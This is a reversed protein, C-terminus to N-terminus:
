FLRTATKDLETVMRARLKEALEHTSDQRDIEGGRQLVEIKSMPLENNNRITDLTEGSGEGDLILLADVPALIRGTGTLFAERWYRARSIDPADFRFAIGDQECVSLVLQRMAGELVGSPATCVAGDEEVVFFNSTLGELLSRRFPGKSSGATESLLVEQTGAQAKLYELRRRDRLWSSHKAEPLSRGPGAILVEVGSCGGGAPRTPLPWAHALINLNSCKKMEWEETRTSRNQTDSTRDSKFPVGGELQRRDEFGEALDGISGDHTYLVTTMCEPCGEATNENEELFLEMARAIAETTRRELSQRGESKAAPGLGTVEASDWLRDLHFSLM